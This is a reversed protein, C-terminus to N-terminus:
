EATVSDVFDVVLTDAAVEAAVSDVVEVTEEVVPMDEDLWLKYGVGIACALVVLVAAVIAIIKKTKDM